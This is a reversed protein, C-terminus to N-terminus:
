WLAICAARALVSQHKDASIRPLAWVGGSAAPQQQCRMHDIHVNISNGKSNHPAESPFVNWANTAENGPRWWM